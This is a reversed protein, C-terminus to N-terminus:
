IYIYIYIENGSVVVDGLKTTTMLPTAMAVPLHWERRM